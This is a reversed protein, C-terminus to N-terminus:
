KVIKVTSGKKIQHKTLFRKEFNLSDLSNVYLVTCYLISYSSLWLYLFEHNMLCCSNVSYLLTIFKLYQVQDYQEKFKKKIVQLAEKTIVCCHHM